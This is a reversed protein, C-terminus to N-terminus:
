ALEERFSATFCNMAEIDAGTPARKLRSFQAEVDKLASDVGPRSRRPGAMLELLVTYFGNLEAEQRHRTRTTKLINQM